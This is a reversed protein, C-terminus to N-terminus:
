KIVSIRIGCNMITSSYMYGWYVIIIFERVKINVVGLVIDIPYRVKFLELDGFYPNFSIISITHIKLKKFDIVKVKRINIICYIYLSVCFCIAHKLM